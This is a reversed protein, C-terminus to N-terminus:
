LVYLTVFLFITFTITLFILLKDQLIVEVPDGDSEGEVNLSYKQMLVIFFPVSWLMVKSEFEMAWLAYFVNALTACVYMNKELFSETYFKLVERTKKLKMENRRKGLGMFLAGATVVLFLWGSIETNSIIGGYYIRIIYGSALISVDIIPKDKLGYSYLINQILYIILLIEAWWIKMIVLPILSAIILIVVISKAQKLSIKGSPLPRNRKKPHLKDKEINNIDNIVYIASAMLSFCIFAGLARGWKEIENITGGFFMPVFILFNKMWHKVRLLKM